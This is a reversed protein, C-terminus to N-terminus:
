FSMLPNKGCYIFTANVIAVESKRICQAYNVSKFKYFPIGISLSSGFSLCFSFGSKCYMFFTFYHVYLLNEYIM